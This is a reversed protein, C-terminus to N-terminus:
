PILKQVLPQALVPLFLGATAIIVTIVLHLACVLQVEPYGDTGRSWLIPAYFVQELLCPTV